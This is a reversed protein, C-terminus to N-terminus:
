KESSIIEVLQAILEGTETLSYTSDQKELLDQEVLDHAYRHHRQIVRNREKKKKEDSSPKESVVGLLVLIDTVGIEEDAKFLGMLLNQKNKNTPIVNAINLPRLPNAGFAQSYPGAPTVEHGNGEEYRKAVYFLQGTNALSCAFASAIAVPKTGGALNIIIDNGREKEEHIIRFVDILARRFEYFNTKEVIVEENDFCRTRDKVVQKVRELPIGEVAEDFGLPEENDLIYVRDAAIEDFLYGVQEQDLTTPVVHVRKAFKSMECLFQVICILDKRDGGIAM